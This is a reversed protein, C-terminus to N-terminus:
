PINLHQRKYVDLHTYSVTTTGKLVSSKVLLDAKPEGSEDSENLLTIDAGMAQFVELFGARTPNIGVNKILLEANPVLRAAAIFYAASSIDGPM